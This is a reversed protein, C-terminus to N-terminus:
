GLAGQLALVLPTTIAALATSLVLSSAISGQLTQFQSAVLYVNVGVSLSGLLVVAHREMPPLGLALALVWVVAPQVLLKIATITLGQALGQRV